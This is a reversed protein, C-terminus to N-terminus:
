SQNDHMVKSKQGFLSCMKRSRIAAKTPQSIHSGIGGYNGPPVAWMQALLSTRKSRVVAVTQFQKGLHPSHWWSTLTSLREKAIPKVRAFDEDLGFVPIVLALSGNVLQWLGVTQDRTL